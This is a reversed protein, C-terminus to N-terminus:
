RKGPIWVATQRRSSTLKCVAQFTLGSIDQTTGHHGKSPPALGWSYLEVASLTFVKGWQREAGSTPLGSKYLAIDQVCQFEVVSQGPSGRVGGPRLCGM